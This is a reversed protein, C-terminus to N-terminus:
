RLVSVRTAVWRASIMDEIEREELRRMEADHIQSRKDKLKQLVQTKRRADLWLKMRVEVLQVARALRQTMADCFSRQQRIAQIFMIQDDRKSTAQRKESLESQLADLDNMAQDLAENTRAQFALAEAYSQRATEEERSRLTLVSELTFRFPRM